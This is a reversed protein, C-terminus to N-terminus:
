YKFCVSPKEQFRYFNIITHVSRISLNEFTLLYKTVGLVKM